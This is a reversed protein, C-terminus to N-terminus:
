SAPETPAGARRADQPEDGDEDDEDELDEDRGRRRLILGGAILVLVPLVFVAVPAGSSGGGGGSVAKIPHGLAASVKPVAAVAARILDDNSGKSISVGKLAADASPGLQFTGFGQPMVVLLPEQKRGTAGTLETGLFGAYRQPQGFLQPVGGLDTNTGVVAVKLPFGAKHAEATLARLQSVLSQTPPPSQPVFIDQLLLVDSAPDADAVARAPLALALLLAAATALWTLRGGRVPARTYASTRPPRRM